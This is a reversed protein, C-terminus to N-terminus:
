RGFTDKWEPSGYEIGPIPVEFPQNPRPPYIITGSGDGADGAPRQAMVGTTAIMLGLSLVATKLFKNM